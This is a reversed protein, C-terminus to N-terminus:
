NLIESEKNIKYCREIGLYNQDAYKESWFGDLVDKTLIQYVVVGKFKKQNEGLYYFNIVLINNKFFGTGFQDQSDNILWHADIKSHDNLTLTLIGNYKSHDENQNKGKVNYKGVLETIIM